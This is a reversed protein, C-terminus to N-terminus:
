DFVFGDDDDHDTNLTLKLIHQIGLSKKEQVQVERLLRSELSSPRSSPLLEIVVKGYVEDVVKGVRVGRGEVIM